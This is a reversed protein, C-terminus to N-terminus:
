GRGPTERRDQATATFTRVEPRIRPRSQARAPASVQLKRQRDTRRDDVWAHAMAAGDLYLGLLKLLGQGATAEAKTQHIVAAKAQSSTKVDVGLIQIM